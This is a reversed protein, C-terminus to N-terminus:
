SNFFVSANKVIWNHIANLFSRYLPPFNFIEPYILTLYLISLQATPVSPVPAWFM